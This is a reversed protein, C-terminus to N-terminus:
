VRVGIPESKGKLEMQRRPLEGPDLNAASYIVESILIEGPRAESALQATSNVNDGMFNSNELEELATL